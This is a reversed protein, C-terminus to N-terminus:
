YQMGIKWFVILYYPILAPKTESNVSITTRNSFVLQLIIRKAHNSLSPPSCDSISVPTAYPMLCSVKARKVVSAGAPLMQM